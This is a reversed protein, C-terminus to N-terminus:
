KANRVSSGEEDKDNGDMEDADLSYENSLGDEDMEEDM